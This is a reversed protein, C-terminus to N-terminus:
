CCSTKSESSTSCGCSCGGGFLLKSEWPLGNAKWATFGGDLNAVNAYGQMNLLNAVKTSRVGGPCALIIHQDKSIYPLREMIVSMPHYVVNDLPVSELAVENPERVDILVAEGKSLAAMADAPSIHKVGEIHFDQLTPQNTTTM